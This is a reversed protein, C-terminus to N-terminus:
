LTEVIDGLEVRAIAHDCPNNGLTIVTNTRTRGPLVLRDSRSFFVHQELSM